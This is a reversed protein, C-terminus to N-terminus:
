VPVILGTNQINATFTVRPQERELLQLQQQYYNLPLYLHYKHILDSEM